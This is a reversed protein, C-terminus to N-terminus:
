NSTPDVPFNAAIALDGGQRRLVRRWLSDPESTLLDDVEADVVYWGHQTLETDLQRAGWAAYGAFVRVVEIDPRVEAPSRGLDVTGVSGLLPYWGDAPETASRGRVLAIVAEHPQVPGGVFAVRPEAALACWEPVAEELTADSPRNIVVGLAAEDTHEIMFVVTRFFHPDLLMPTAVLLRRATSSMTRTLRSGYDPADSPAQM